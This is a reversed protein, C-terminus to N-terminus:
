TSLQLIEPDVRCLQEQIAIAEHFLKDAEALFDHGFLLVARQALYKALQAQYALTNPSLSM